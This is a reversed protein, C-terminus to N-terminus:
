STFVITTGPSPDARHELNRCSPPKLRVRRRWACSPVRIPGLRRLQMYITDMPGLQVNRLPRCVCPVLDM